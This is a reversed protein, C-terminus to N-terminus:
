AKTAFFYGVMAGALPSLAALSKDFIEKGRDTSDTFYLISTFVLLMLIGTFTAAAFRLKRTELDGAEPTKMVVYAAVGIVLVFAALGLYVLPDYKFM